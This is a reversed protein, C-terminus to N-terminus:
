KKKYLRDIEVSRRKIEQTPLKKMKSAITGPRSAFKSLNLVEFKMEKVLKVTEEFDAKTETPYGVIIDTSVIIGPIEKRFKNIIKKFDEVTYKRNMEKLVKNSGAQVPIHIFKKIKKNKFVEVLEDLIATLPTPNMMGIRVEFDGKIKTIDNLLTVLKSKAPFAKSKPAGSIGQIEKPKSVDLGYASNDQSTLYITTVGQKVRTKIEKIIQDEPFSFIHGKALKTICFYCCDACGESIQVAVTKNKIIKPLNLKVEKGKSTFSVIDNKMIRKVVEVVKTTNQTSLFSFNSFENKLQKEQAGAMCGSIIVKKKPFKKKINRLESIIKNETVGKVTCSNIIIVDADEFSNVINFDAEILLGSMIAENDQNATCGYTKIFFSVMLFLIFSFM